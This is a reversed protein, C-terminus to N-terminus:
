LLLRRRRCAMIKPEVAVQIMENAPHTPDLVRKAQKAGAVLLLAPDVPQRVSNEFGKVVADIPEPFIIDRARGSQTASTLSSFGM